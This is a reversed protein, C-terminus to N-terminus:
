FSIKLFNRNDHNGILLKPYLNKQLNSENLISHFKEYSSEKGFHTLDGTIIFLDADNHNNNIHIIASKFREVSNIDFFINPEIHPDSLHIIKM